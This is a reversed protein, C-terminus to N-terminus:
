AMQKEFADLYEAFVDLADDVPQPTSMDVGAAALLDIPDRSSGGSLFEKVYRDVAPQGEKLIKKSFAVAASFGTAYQYVYFATYFHPIRMWEYDIESDVVVDPGYYLVNLEHYIKNLDDKTLSEGEAIKEHVIKEFEAFMTQRFLTTRFNELYHNLIYNRKNEETEHELLYHNLLCENCTSAVEAVFILYGSYVFPQAKNSHYTHIAHGMEHALTFMSNLDDQQNLLVYPHTGYAGWSYAGSRKNANAAVDIWGNDYGERLIDTYAKGMPALAKAVTEKAEEYPINQDVDPVLPVYLDYMHLHEVGLIKKRLAMYRHMDPLHRHVTEILNDYVSEQINGESLHMARVSPYKRMKAFFAEQKLNSVFISALTNGWKAYTGYLGRFAEKRLSRDKDNLFKIFNAHTISIRNGEVDTISPFRIDANNFMSFINEPSAALEGAAALINEEEASLTHARQRTIVEISRRYLELEPADQYFKAITEEPIALIEPDAFSLASLVEVRVSEAKAAYAQYHADATDQHYSQNAYVYMRSVAQMLADRDQFFALLTRASEALKGQYSAIKEAMGGIADVEEEWKADSAYMDTLKWKLAEPVDARQCQTKEAMRKGRWVCEFSFHMIEHAFAVIM